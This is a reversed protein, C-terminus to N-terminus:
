KAPQPTTRFIEVDSVLANISLFFANDYWFKTGCDCQVENEKLLQVRIANGCNRGPCWKVNKNDQFCSYPHSLLCVNVYANAILMHYKDLLEKGKSREGLMKTITAEDLQM